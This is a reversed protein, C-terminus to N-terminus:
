GLMTSIYRTQLTSCEGADCPGTPETLGPTECYYGPTCPTCETDAQLGTQNSYTGPPCTPQNSTTGVDVFM